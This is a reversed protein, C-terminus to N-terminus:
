PNADSQKPMNKYSAAYANYNQKNTAKAYFKQKNIESVLTKPIIRKLNLKLDASIHNTLYQNSSDVSNEFIQLFLYLFSNTSIHFIQM